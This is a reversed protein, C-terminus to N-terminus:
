GSEMRIPRPVVDLLPAAAGKSNNTVRPRPGKPAYGRNFLPAAEPRDGATVGAALPLRQGGSPDRCCTTLRLRLQLLSLAPIGAAGPPSLPTFRREM